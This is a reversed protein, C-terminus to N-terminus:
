WTAGPHERAVSQLEAVLPELRDSHRGSRGRERASQAAPRILTADALVDDFAADFDEQLDAPVVAVGAAVLGLETPTAEFLEPLWPVVRAVGQQARDHSLATGDGLRRVWDAAYERHYALEIVAKDALAALVPDASGRLATFLAGRWLSVALLRVVLVGFHEDEQEVLCVNRFQGASRRFAFDDEGRRGSEAQGARGYLWRAQGLHDLAINALATEEELEPARTLWQTLRHSYVLADDALMVCYASLEGPAVGNPLEGSVGALTDVFGTGYAWRAAEGAGTLADYATEFSM